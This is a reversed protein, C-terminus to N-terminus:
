YVAEVVPIPIMPNLDYTILGSNHHVLNQFEYGFSPDSHSFVASSMLIICVDTTAIQKTQCLPLMEHVDRAFFLDPYLLDIAYLYEKGLAQDVMHILDIEQNVANFISVHSRDKITFFEPAHQKFV